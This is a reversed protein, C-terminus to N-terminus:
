PNLERCVAVGEDDQVTGLNGDNNIDYRSFWSSILDRQNVANTSLSLVLGNDFGPDIDGASTHLGSGNNGPHPTWGILKSGNARYTLDSCCSGVENRLYSECLNWQENSTHADLNYRSFESNYQAGCHVLSYTQNYGGTLDNPNYVIEAKTLGTWNPNIDSIRKDDTPTLFEIRLAYWRTGSEDTPDLYMLRVTPTDHSYSYTKDYTM